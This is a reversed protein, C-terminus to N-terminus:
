IEPQPFERMQVYTEPLPTAFQKSGTAPKIRDKESRYMRYFLNFLDTM